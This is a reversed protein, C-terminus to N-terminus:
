MDFIDMFKFISKSSLSKYDKSKCKALYKLKDTISDDDILLDEDEELESEIKEIITSNYLIVINKVMEDVENVKNDLNILKLLDEILDRLLSMLSIESVVGNLCLNVFFQSIAARKDNKKNIECFKDYDTQPDVYEINKFLELYSSYNKEFVKSFISSYKNILETYIDAYIKSYFANNSAIEFITNGVKIMDEDGTGVSILSEIISIINDRTNTYSKDTLKNLNFRLQDINAAIGTKQEIKTAQFTRISEWEENSIENSKKNKKKLLNNTQGKKFIPAKIACSSGVEISLSSIINITEEPVEYDFGNSIIKSFEDLSYIMMSAM